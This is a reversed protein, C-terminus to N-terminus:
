EQGIEIEDITFPQGGLPRKADLLNDEELWNLHPAVKGLAL